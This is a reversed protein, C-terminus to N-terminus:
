RFMISPPFARRLEWKHDVKQGPESELKDFGMDRVISAGCMAAMMASILAARLASMMTMAM